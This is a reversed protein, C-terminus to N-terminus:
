RKLDKIFPKLTKDLRIMADIMKDQAEVWTEKNRLGYGAFKVGIRSARKKDLREWLLSGGFTKEIEKKHQFLQDFREKNLDRYEKGRDLYLDCSVYDNTIIYNLTIGSKGAGTGIWHYISPSLNSHLNTKSKAKELLQTWFEKRLHHREAYEKKEKGIEKSMETPEAVVSFLPAPASDGIRVAEIKLLYFAIDEPTYENLWNVAKIHEDRPNSSIWIATKAELNTLYTIVKGLHDHDTKELQNEIITIQGDDDEAILDLSFDGVLKERSIVSLNMEMSENLTDINESLWTTFDRAENKWIERLPVKKLKGIMNKTANM